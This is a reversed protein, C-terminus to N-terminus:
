EAVERSWSTKPPTPAPSVAQELEVSSAGAGREGVDVLAANSVFHACVVRRENNYTPTTTTNQQPTSGLGKVGNHGGGKADASRAQPATMTEAREDAM